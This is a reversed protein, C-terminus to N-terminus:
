ELRQLMIADDDPNSEVRYRRRGLRFDNIERVYHRTLGTEDVIQEQSKEGAALWTLAKRFAPGPIPIPDFGPRKKAAQKKKAQARARREIALDFGGAIMETQTPMEPLPEPEQLKAAQATEAIRELARAHVKTAEEAAERFQRMGHLWDALEPHAAEIAEPSGHEDLEQRYRGLSLGESPKM